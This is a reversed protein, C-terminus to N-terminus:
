IKQQQYESLSIMDAKREGGGEGGALLVGVDVGM